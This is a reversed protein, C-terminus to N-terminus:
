APYLEALLPATIREVAEIQAPYLDERWSGPSAKRYFRGEGKEEEPLNEWSHRAIVDKLQGAEVPIELDGYLRRMAGFADARLEEYRVLAKRGPHADYARMANGMGQLYARARTEAFPVSDRGPPPKHQRVARDKNKEYNWGGERRADLSSAVVDRPDRALLLMRSEPLAEMLLPAGVSGNPEKVVLYQDRGLDPFTSAAADLVFNRISRIWTERHRGMIFHPGQHRKEGTVYYFNGFLAGVWPESWVIQGDMGGMMSSLWTSGSRGSGFLWVLNEARVPGAGARARAFDYPSSSRQIEARVVGIELNLFAKMSRFAFTIHQKFAPV